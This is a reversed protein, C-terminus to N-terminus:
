RTYKLMRVNSPGQGILSTVDWVGTKAGKPNLTEGWYPKPDLIGVKSFALTRANRPTEDRNLALDRARLTHSRKGRRPYGDGENPTSHTQRKRHLSTYQEPAPDKRELSVGRGSRAFLPCKFTTSGSKLLNHSHGVAM